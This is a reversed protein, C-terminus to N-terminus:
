LCSSQLPWAALDEHGVSMQSRGADVHALRRAQWNSFVSAHEPAMETAVRAWGDILLRQVDGDAAGLRWDSPARAVRYGAEVFCREACAVADPGASCGGFGKDTKQHRNMLARVMEDEPEAPTCASRGDYTITFLAVASEKACRAALAALWPASVLDLLASATVVHRGDFLGRDDLTSFDRQRAEVVCHLSEGDIACRGDDLAVQYGRLAAWSAMDQLLADLLLSSRDVALWHQRGMLREALYRINSGTGTGLDLLRIPGRTRRAVTEAAARALSESRAAADAPERLRLWHALADDM